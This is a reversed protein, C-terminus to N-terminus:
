WETHAANAEGDDSLAREAKPKLLDRNQRPKLLTRADGVTVFSGTVLVGYGYGLGTEDGADVLDVAKQHLMPEMEKSPIDQM